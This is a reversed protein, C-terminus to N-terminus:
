TVSLEWKVTAPRIYNCISVTSTSHNRRRIAPVHLSVNDPHTWCVSSSAKETKLGMVLSYFVFLFVIIITVPIFCLAACNMGYNGSNKVCPYKACKCLFILLLLRNNSFGGAQKAREISRAVWDVTRTKSIRSNDWQSRQNIVVFMHSCIKINLFKTHSVTVFDCCLASVYCTVSVSENSIRSFSVHDRCLVAHCTLATHKECDHLFDASNWNRYMYTREDGSFPSLHLQSPDHYNRNAAMNKM